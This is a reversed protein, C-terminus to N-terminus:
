TLAKCLDGVNPPATRKPQEFNWLAKAQLRSFRGILTKAKVMREDENACNNLLSSTLTVVEGVQEPTKWVEELTRVQEYSGLAAAPRQGFRYPDGSEVSQLAELAKQLVDAPLKATGDVYDSLSSIISQCFEALALYQTRSQLDTPMQVVGEEVESMTGFWGFKLGQEGLSAFM